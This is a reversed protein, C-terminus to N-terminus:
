IRYLDDWNSDFGDLTEDQYCPSLPDLPDCFSTAEGATISRDHNDEHCLSVPDWPDCHTVTPEVDSSPVDDEWTTEHDSETHEQFLLPSQKEKGESAPAGSDPTDSGSSGNMVLALVALGIWILVIIGLASM